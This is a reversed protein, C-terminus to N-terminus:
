EKDKFVDNFAKKITNQWMLRDYEYKQNQAEGFHTPNIYLDGKGGVIAFEMIDNINPALASNERSLSRTVRNNERQNNNAPIINQMISRTIKREPQTQIVEMEEIKENESEGDAEDDSKDKNIKVVIKVEYSMKNLWLRDRTVTVRGIKPNYIMYTDGVHNMSYGM